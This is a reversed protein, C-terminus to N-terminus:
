GTQVANKSSNMSNKFFMKEDYLLNFPDEKFPDWYFHFDKDVLTVIWNAETSSESYNRYEISKINENKYGIRNFVFRIQDEKSKTDFEKKTIILYELTAEMTGKENDVNGFSIQVISEEPIDYKEFLDKILEYGSEITENILLLIVESRFVDIAQLGIVEVSM